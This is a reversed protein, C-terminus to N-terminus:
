AVERETHHTTQADPHRSPLTRFACTCKCTKVVIIRLSVVMLAEGMPSSCSERGCGNRLLLKTVPECSCLEIGAM